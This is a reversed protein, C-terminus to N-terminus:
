PPPISKRKQMTDTILSQKTYPKYRADETGADTTTRNSTLPTRLKNKASLTPTTELQERRLLLVDSNSKNKQKQLDREHAELETAVLGPFSEKGSESEKNNEKSLAIPEIIKYNDLRKRQRANENDFHRVMERQDPQGFLNRRVGGSPRVPPIRASVASSSTHIIVPHVQCPAMEVVTKFALKEIEINRQYFM